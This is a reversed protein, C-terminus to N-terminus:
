DGTFSRLVGEFLSCPFSGAKLLTCFGGFINTQNIDPELWLQYEACVCVFGWSFSIDCKQGPTGTLYFLLLIVSITSMSVATNSSYCWLLM